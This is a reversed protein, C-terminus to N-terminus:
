FTTVERITSNFDKNYSLHSGVRLLAKSGDPMSIFPNSTATKISVAVTHDDVAKEDHQWRYFLGVVGLIAIFITAVRLCSNRYFHKSPLAGGFLRGCDNTLSLSHKGRIMPAEPEAGFLDYYGDVAKSEDLGSKGSLYKRVLKRFSRNRGSGARKM